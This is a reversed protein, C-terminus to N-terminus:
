HIGKGSPSFPSAGSSLIIATPYGFGCYLDSASTEALPRHRPGPREESESSIDRERARSSASCRALCRAHAQAEGWSVLLVCPRLCPPLHGSWGAYRVLVVCVICAPVTWLTVHLHAVGVVGFENAAGVGDFENLPHM